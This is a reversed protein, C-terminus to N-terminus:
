YVRIVITARGKQSTEARERRLDSLFDLLIM